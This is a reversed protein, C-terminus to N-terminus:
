DESSYAHHYGYKDVYGYDQWADYGLNARSNWVAEASSGKKKKGTGYHNYGGNKVQQINAKAQAAASASTPEAFLDEEEEDDEEDM